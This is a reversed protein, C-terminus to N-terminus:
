YQMCMQVGVHPFREANVRETVVLHAGEDSEEIRDAHGEGVDLGVSREVSHCSTLGSQHVADAVRGCVVAHRHQAHGPGAVLLDGALSRHREDGLEIDVEPVVVCACQDNSRRGWAVPGSAAATLALRASLSPTTTVALALLNGTRTSETHTWASVGLAISTARATRRIM